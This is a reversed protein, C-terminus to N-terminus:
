HPRRIFWLGMNLFYGVLFFAVVFLLLFPLVHM